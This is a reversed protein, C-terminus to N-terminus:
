TTLSSPWQIEYLTRKSLATSLGFRCLAQTDHLHGGGRLGVESLSLDLCKAFERLWQHLLVISPVIVTVRGDPNTDLFRKAAAISFITKGTGTVASVVGWKGAKEWSILADEQWRHLNLDPNWSHSRTRRSETLNTSRLNEESELFSLFQNAREDDFGDLQSLIDLGLSSIINSRTPVKEIWKERKLNRCLLRRFSERAKQTGRRKRYRNLVHTRIPKLDKM